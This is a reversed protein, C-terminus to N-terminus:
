DKIYMYLSEKSHKHDYKFGEFELKDLNELGYEIIHNLIQGRMKKSSVSHQKLINDNLIYFEFNIINHHVIGKSFENSALNIIMDEDKIMNNIEQYIEKYYQKSDKMTYDYRYPSIYDFPKSYGYLASLIMVDNLVPSKKNTLQRFSIGNYLDIAKKSVINIKQNIHFHEEKAKLIHYDKLPIDKIKSINKYVHKINIDNEKKILNDTNMEKSCSFLIKM